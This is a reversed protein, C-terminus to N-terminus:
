CEFLKGCPNILRKLLFVWSLLLAIGTLVIKENQILNPLDLPFYLMRRYFDFCVTGGAKASLMARSAPFGLKQNFFGEADEASFL